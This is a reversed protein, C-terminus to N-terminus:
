EGEKGCVHSSKNSYYIKEVTNVCFCRVSSCFLNDNFLASNSHYVFHAHDGDGVRSSLIQSNNNKIEIDKLKRIQQTKQIM